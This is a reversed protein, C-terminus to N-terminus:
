FPIDDVWYGLGEAVLDRAPVLVGHTDNLQSYKRQEVEPWRGLRPLVWALLVSLPRLRLIRGNVVDHYGVEHQGPCPHTFLWGLRGRRKNSWTELFVNGTAAIERDAKIDLTWVRGDEVYLGDAHFQTQLATSLPSRDLLWIVPHRLEYIDAAGRFHEAEVASAEEYANM